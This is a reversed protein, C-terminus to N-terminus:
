YEEKYAPILYHDEFIAVCEDIYIPNLNNKKCYQHIGQVLIDDNRLFEKPIHTEKTRAAKLIQIEFKEKM